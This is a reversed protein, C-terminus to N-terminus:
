CKRQLVLPYQVLEQETGASFGQKRDGGVRLMKSCVDPKETNKMGPSLVQEVMRMNM